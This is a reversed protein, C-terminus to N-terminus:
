QKDLCYFGVSDKFVYKHVILDKFWSHNYKELEKIIKKDILQQVATELLRNFLNKGQNYEFLRLAHEFKSQCNIIEIKRDSNFAIDGIHDKVIISSFIIRFWYHDDWDPLEIKPSLTVTIYKRPGGHSRSARFSIEYDNGLLYNANKIFIYLDHCKQMYDFAQRPSLDLNFLDVFMNCLDMCGNIYEESDIYAAIHAYDEDYNDNILKRIEKLFLDFEEHEKRFGDIKDKIYRRIWSVAGGRIIPAQLVERKRDEFIM